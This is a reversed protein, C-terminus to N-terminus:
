VGVMLQNKVLHFYAGKLEVLEDHTGQEVIQGRDIFVIKDADMVTSLRHAVTVITRGRFFTKINAMIMEENHADLANTAEDFFLFEPNKYVARAILLRQRQGLSLGQGREGVLTDVGSPLSSIFDTLNAIELAESLQEPDPRSQGLTINRAITDSFIFADPTVNGCKMRWKEYPLQYLDTNGLKIEGAQPRYFKMLLKLITTKGSGSCGVIATTKGYEITLNLNKLVPPAGAMPYKFTIGKLRIDSRNEVVVDYSATEEMEDKTNYIENLRDLSIRADELSHLFSLFQEVPNNIQGLIYQIAMMEGLTLTGALVAKASLFTIVITKGQNLFVAGANQLQSLALQKDKYIFHKVQLREWDWRKDKEALNLKIDTLGGLLENVSSHNMASNEFQMYNLERKPRIFFITWLAYLVTFGLFVMLITTDYAALLYTFIFLNFLSFFTNLASGTLFGEIKQQDNIRAILDGTTKTDFFAIPLSLLKALFNSLLKISIGTSIKLLIWAKIHNVALNALFLILQGLLILKILNIDRSNIGEDVITKTLLPTLFQFLSGFLFALCLQFFLAGYPVLIHWNQLSQKVSPLHKLLDFDRNTKLLLVKGCFEKRSYWLNYFEQEPFAIKGKSPDTIYFRGREVKYLVVYQNLRWQLICPLYESNFEGPQVIITSADFGLLDAAEKLGTMTVGNKAIQAYQRLLTIPVKKGYYRCIVELCTPGSDRQDRQQIHRIKFKAKM